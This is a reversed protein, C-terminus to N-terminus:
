PRPSTARGTLLAMIILGTRARPFDAPRHLPLDPPHHAQDDSHHCDVHDAVRAKLQGHRVRSWGTPAAGASRSGVTRRGRVAHRAAQCFRIGCFAPTARWTAAACRCWSRRGELAPLRVPVPGSSGAAPAPSSRRVRCRCRVGAAPRARGPCSRRGWRRGDRRTPSTRAVSWGTRLCSCTRGWQCTAVGPDLAGDALCLQGGGPGVGEEAGAVFADDLAAAALSGQDGDAM